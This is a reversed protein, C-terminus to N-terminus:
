SNESDNIYIIVDDSYLSIQVEEKRIQIEQIDKLQRRLVLSFLYPSLPHGQSKGSKLLFAKIKKKEEM